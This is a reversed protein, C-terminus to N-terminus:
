LSNTVVLQLKVGQRNGHTLMTPLRIFPNVTSELMQMPCEYQTFSLRACIWDSATGTVCCMVCIYSYTYWLSAFKRPSHEKIVM